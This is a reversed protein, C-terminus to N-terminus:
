NSPLKKIQVSEGRTRHFPYTQVLEKRQARKNEPFRTRMKGTERCREWTKECRKKSNSGGAKGPRGKKELHRAASTQPFLSFVIDRRDPRRFPSTITGM